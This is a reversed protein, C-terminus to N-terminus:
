PCLETTWQGAADGRACQSRRYANTPFWGEPERRFEIRLHGATVSDDMMGSRVVDAVASDGEERVTLSLSSGEQYAEPGIVSELAAMVTPAGFVGIESPEIATFGSAPAAVLTPDVPPLDIPTEETVEDEALPPAVDSSSEQQQPQGCGFLALALAGVALYRWGMM